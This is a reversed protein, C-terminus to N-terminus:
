RHQLRGQSVIFSGTGTSSPFNELERLDFALDNCVHFERQGRLVAGNVDPKLVFRREREIKLRAEPDRRYQRVPFGSVVFRKFTPSRKVDLGCATGSHVLGGQPPNEIPPIM